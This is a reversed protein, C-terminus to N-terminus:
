RQAANGGAAGDGQAAAIPRQPTFEKTLSAVPAVFGFAKGGAPVVRVENGREIHALVEANAITAEASNGAIVNISFHADFPSVGAALVASNAHGYREGHAAFSRAGFEVALTKGCRETVANTTPGGILILHNGKLDADQVEADSKVRVEINHWANRITKMCRQAADRNAAEDERAGFVILTHELDDVFAGLDAEGGNGRAMLGYKDVVLRTVSREASAEFTGDPSLKVDQTIEDGTTELTLKINGPLPGDNARLKGRVRSGSADNSCTAEILEYRPLGTGTMWFQFFSGLDRGAARSAAAAFDSSTVPKGAHERGFEDMLKFFTEDGLTRRLEALVLVGKGSAIKYWADTAPEPRIASLALDGRMRVGSFYRARASFLNTAAKDLDTSCMCKNPRCEAFGRERSVMSEYEAFATALWVDGGTAPLLTGHWVPRATPPEKDDDDSAALLKGTAEEALDVPAPRVLDAGLAPGLLTWSHSVLPRIEKFKKLEDPTAEWTRGRPPGFEAWSLMKKALTANTFKADVSASACLPATTFAMQGFHEDMKGANARYLEVWKMDRDSPHWVVNAPRDNVGPLTELRVAMDKANNCGWYFGETGGYWENERSRWLKDTHTGLEFMAIEDTKMDALLWENTYLGNNGKRLTEVVGDISDCYQLAHRVRSALTQGSGDFRTQDITTEVMAIGVDNLYYDMGSYIGAPYSQMVVRHGAAPQVDLWVNFFNSPYLGFMTIHGILPHGDRTAKGTAAFASCHGEKAPRVTAPGASPFVVGELGTPTAGNADDLTMLEPWLNLAVVDILDIPRDDFKVGAAAAGDAIGQMEDLYEREFNRLFSTNAIMRMLKWGETPAGPSQMVAYCRLYGTIEPALLRGHQVGREYPAGEIHLVIWGHQPYRFAPGYHQVTAPDPTFPAPDAAFLRGFGLSSVAAIILMRIRM